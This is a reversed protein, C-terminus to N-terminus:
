MEQILLWLMVLQCFIIFGAGLLHPPTRSSDADRDEDRARSVTSWPAAPRWEPIATERAHRPLIPLIREPASRYSMNWNNLKEEM